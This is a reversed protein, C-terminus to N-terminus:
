AARALLRRIRAATVAPHALDEWTLRIIRWGTLELIAEERRKERLVAEEITENPRRLATYKIRGDFECFLRREPWAFDVRALLRGDPLYIEWQPIPTPLGQSWILYASRSEGVSEFRPDALHLMVNGGLSYPWMQRTGEMEVLEPMSTLGRHMFDSAIVVAAEPNALSAADLVTRTPSTVWHGDIRTLDQVRCTGHHHVVQAGKRGGGTLHTLHVSSLDLGWTPGGHRIVASSHSLAVHDAYQRMVAGSAMRHRAQESAPEWVARLAYAGQRIRVLLGGKVLRRLANDDIGHAVADRRLLVGTSAALALALEEM